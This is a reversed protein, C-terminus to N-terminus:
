LSSPPAPLTIPAPTPSRKTLAASPAAESAIRAGEMMLSSVAGYAEAWAALARSTISEEDEKKSPGRLRAGELEGDKESAESAFLVETLAAILCEGVWSYMEETVGYAVHKAGLPHLTEVLWAPDEAHAVVAALAATLMKAQAEASKRGFMPKVEPYREFFIEYFRTALATEREAIVAFSDRLAQVDLSMTKEKV